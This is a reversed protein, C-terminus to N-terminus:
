AAGERLAHAYRLAESTEAAITSLLIERAKSGRAGDGVMAEGAEALNGVTWAGVGRSSGKLAHCLDRWAEDDLDISLRGLLSEAQEAFISLIEDFLAADDGTYKRLHERDIPPHIPTM